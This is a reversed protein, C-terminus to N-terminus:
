RVLLAVALALLSKRLALRKECVAAWLLGARGSVIDNENSFVGLLLRTGSVQTLVSFRSRKHIHPSLAVFGSLGDMANASTELYGFWLFYVLRHFIRMQVVGARRGFFARLMLVDDFDAHLIFIM